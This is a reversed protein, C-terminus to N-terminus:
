SNRTTGLTCILTPSTSKTLQIYIYIYIYTNVTKTLLRRITCYYVHVVCHLTKQGRIEPGYLFLLLITM